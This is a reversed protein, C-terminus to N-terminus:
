DCQKDDENEYIEIYRDIMAKVLLAYARNRKSMTEIKFRAIVTGGDCIEVAKHAPYSKIIYGNYEYVNSRM